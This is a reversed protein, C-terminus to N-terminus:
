VEATRVNMMMWDASCFRSAPITFFKCFGACSYVTHIIRIELDYLVVTGKYTHLMFQEINSM